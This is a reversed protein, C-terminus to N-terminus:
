FVNLTDHVFNVYIVQHNVILSKLMRASVVKLNMRDVDEVKMMSLNQGSLISYIAHDFLLLCKLRLHMDFSKESRSMLQM